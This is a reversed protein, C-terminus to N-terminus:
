EVLQIFGSAIINHQEEGILTYFYTGEHLKNGNEDKGDWGKQTDVQKIREGWRNFVSCKLDSLHPYYFALDNINDGNPTFVNEIQLNLEIVSVNDLVFYQEDYPNSNRIAKTAADTNFNGFFVFRENGKAKYYLTRKEWNLTDNVMRSDTIKYTPYCQYYLPFLASDVAFGVGFNNSEFPNINAANIHYEIKYFLDKKLTQMLQAAIYERYNYGDAYAIIAVYAEGDQPKQYGIRNEPSSYADEPGICANFVDPTGENPSYWYDLFMFKLWENCSDTEEFSHNPVLNEQAFSLNVYGILLLLILNKKLRNMKYFTTIM